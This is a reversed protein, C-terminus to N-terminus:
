GEAGATLARRTIVHKEVVHGKILHGQIIEELVAPTCGGYWVGEPYVLAIPGPPGCIRLCDVKNRQVIGSSSLGLELLRSKLYSWSENAVERGSCKPKSQDCCLFIHRQANPIGIREATQRQPTPDPHAGAVDVM